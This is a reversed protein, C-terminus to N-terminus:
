IDKIRLEKLAIPNIIEFASDLEMFNGLSVEPVDEGMISNLEHM